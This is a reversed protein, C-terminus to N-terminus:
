AESQDELEYPYIGLAIKWSIGRDGVLGVRPVPSMHDEQGYRVGGRAAGPVAGALAGAAEPRANHNRRSEQTAM